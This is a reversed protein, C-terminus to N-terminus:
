YFHYKGSVKYVGPTRECVLRCEQLDVNRVCIHRKTNLVNCATNLEISFLLTSETGHNQEMVIVPPPNHLLIPPSDVPLLNLIVNYRGQHVRVHIETLM